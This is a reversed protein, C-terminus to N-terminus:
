FYTLRPKPMLGIGSELNGKGNLGSCRMFAAMATSTMRTMMAADEASDDAAFDFTVRSSCTM